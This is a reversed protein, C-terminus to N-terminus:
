PRDIPWLPKTLKLGPEENPPNNRQAAKVWKQIPWAKTGLDLNSM